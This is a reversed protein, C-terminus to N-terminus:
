RAPEADDATVFEYPIGVFKLLPVTLIKNLTKSSKTLPTPWTGAQVMEYAASRGLGPLDAAHEPSLTLAYLEGTATRIRAPTRPHKRSM